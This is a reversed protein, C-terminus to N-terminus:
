AASKVAAPATARELEHRLPSALQIAVAAALVGGAAGLLWGPDIWGGLLGALGMGLPMSCMAVVRRVAFVRGQVEPPTVTQWITQSHANTVPGLASILFAMATALVITTSLGYGLQGLGIAAMPVLVGLVRRRGAGSWVAIAVGGAVGGLSGALTVLAYGSEFGLGRARLDGALDVKLMLPVLVHEPATLLNLLLFSVLLWLLPRRALVFRVGFAIDSWLPPAAAPERAPSAIRLVGLAAAGCAFSLADLAFALGWGDPLAALASGAGSWAGARAAAPLGGLVVGAVPALVNSVSWSVDVLANARALHRQPVVMVYSADFAARHFAALIAILTILAILRAADLRGTVALAALAAAVATNAVDMVLMTRRRDHRDAWAGALPAVVVSPVIFALMQVALMVALARRDEPRPYRVTALWTTAAFSSLVSGFISISQTLWLAIFRPLSPADRGATSLEPPM